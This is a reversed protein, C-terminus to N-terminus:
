LTLYDQFQHYYYLSHPHINLVLIVFPRIKIVMGFLHIIVIMGLCVYSKQVGKETHKKIDGFRHPCGMLICLLYRLVHSGNVDTCVTSLQGLINEVFLNILTGLADLPEQDPRQELADREEEISQSLYKNAVSLATQMVHSAYTQTLM